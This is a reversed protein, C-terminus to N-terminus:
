PIAMRSSYDCVVQRLYNNSQRMYSKLHSDTKDKNVIVFM